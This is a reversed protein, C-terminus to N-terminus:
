LLAESCTGVYFFNRPPQAKRALSHLWFNTAINVLKDGLQILTQPSPMERDPNIFPDGHKPMGNMAATATEIGRVYVIENIQGAAFTLAVGRRKLEDNPTAPCGVISDGASEKIRDAFGLNWQRKLVRRDPPQFASM